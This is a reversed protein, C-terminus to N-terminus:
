AEARECHSLLDLVSGDGVAIADLSSLRTLRVCPACRGDKRGDNYRRRRDWGGRGGTTSELVLTALKLWQLRHTGHRATGHQATSHVHGIVITNFPTSFCLVVHQLARYICHQQLLHTSHQLHGTGEATRETTASSWVVSAVCLTALATAAAAFATTGAAVAVTALTSRVRRRRRRWWWWCWWRAASKLAITRSSSTTPCNRQVTVCDPRTPTGRGSSPPTHRRDAEGSTLSSLPPCTHRRHSRHCPRIDRGDTRGHRTCSLRTLRAGGRAQKRAQM